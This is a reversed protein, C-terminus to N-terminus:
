KYDERVPQFVDILKCATIARASHPVNSPIVVMDGGSCVKTDGNVTMELQGEIMNTVQEHVHFHEPLIAGEEIRVHAVSM